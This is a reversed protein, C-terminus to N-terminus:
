SPSRNALNAKLEAEIRQLEDLSQADFQHVPSTPRNLLSELLQIRGIILGRSLGQELGLERGQERGKKLGQEMGKEVGEQIYAEAITQSMTQTEQFDNEPLQAQRVAEIIQSREEKLRLKGAWSLM